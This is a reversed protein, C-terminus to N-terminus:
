PRSSYARIYDIKYLAPFPTTSDVTNRGWGGIATDIILYMKRGILDSPTVTQFIQTGDFYWTIKDAAFSLGYVHYGSTLDPTPVAAGLQFHGSYPQYSGAFPATSHVTTFVTTPSNGLGEMIDIEPPWAGDAPLMWFAPWLGNGKPMQARMEYYGYGFSPNM